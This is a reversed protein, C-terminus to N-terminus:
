VRGTVGWEEAALDQLQVGCQCGKGRCRSGTSTEDSRRHMALSHDCSDLPCPLMLTVAGGVPKAHREALGAWNWPGPYWGLEYRTHTSGQQTRVTTGVPPEEPIEVPATYRAV